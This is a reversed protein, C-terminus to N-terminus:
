FGLYKKYVHSLFHIKPKFRYKKFNTASNHSKELLEWKMSPVSYLPARCAKKTRTLCETCSDPWTPTARLTCQRGTTLAKEESQARKLVYKGLTDTHCKQLSILSWLIDVISNILLCYNCPFYIRQKQVQQVWNGKDQLFPILMLVILYLTYDPSPSFAFNIENSNSWFPPPSSSHDPLFSPPLVRPQQLKWARKNKKGGM